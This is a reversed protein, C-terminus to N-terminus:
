IKAIATLQQSLYTSLGQMRSLAADLATYQARLRKETADLRDQVNVRRKDIERISNTIGDTRSAIVGDSGLMSEITTDLQAAYGTVAGAQVFLASALKNPDNLATDLKASDIALSGDGQFTIGAQSLQTLGNSGAIPTNMLSRIQNQVSRVASDGSLPGRSQGTPDAVTLDRLLKNVDNYAKVFTEINAKTPAVDKAITVSTPAGANTQLLNLTLGDIAGTVVNTSSTVDIGNIKLAADAPAKVETLNAAGGTSADFALKSLGADDGNNGDADSATIRIAHALGPDNATLFLRSGAVGNVITASVGAGASNIAARIDALTANAPDIVVDVPTRDPNATFAGGSYSGIEIHLTGSGVNDSAAGFGGKSLQQAQALSTIEVSYNGATASPGASASLIKDDGVSTKYATFKDPTKLARAAAQLASLASKAQGYATLKTNFNKQKTDLATLPRREITMLQNIISNVDLGSGIGPTSLTAM